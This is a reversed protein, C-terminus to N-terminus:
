NSGEDRMKEQSKPAQNHSTERAILIRRLRRAALPFEKLSAVHDDGLGRKEMSTALTQLEIAGVMGCSGKVAHAEARYTADNGSAAASRMKTLRSDIDALCLAYLQELQQPRMSAALKRYTTEDLVAIDKTQSGRTPKAAIGALAATFAGITFPKLLFGDFNRTSHDELATASMALITTTSGCRLRLRQALDDGTIGPMQLDTLIAHPLTHASQLLSIAAEGSDASEVIYGAADLLLTLVERSLADDDIVLVSVPM